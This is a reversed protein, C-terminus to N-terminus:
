IQYQINLLDYPSLLRMRMIIIFIEDPSEPHEKTLWHKIISIIPAVLIEYIYDNPIQSNLEHNRSLRLIDSNIAEVLLHHVKKEFNPDGNPGLLAKSLEFEIHVYNIVQHIVHYLNPKNPCEEVDQLFYKLVNDLLTNEFYEVLADKDQFHKYFTSRNIQAKETIDTVTFHNLGKTNILEILARKLKNQTNVIKQHM